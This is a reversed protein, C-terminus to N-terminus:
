YVEFLCSPSKPHNADPDNKYTDRIEVTYSGTHYSYGDTSLNGSTDTQAAWFTTGVPGYVHIVYAYSPRFGEGTITYVSSLTVPNPTVYCSGTYRIHGGGGRDASVPGVIVAVFLALALLLRM